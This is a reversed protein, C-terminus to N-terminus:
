RGLSASMESLIGKLREEFEGRFKTGAILAGMDLALLKKNKLSEPVDGNIIRLAM